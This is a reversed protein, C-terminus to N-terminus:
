IGYKSPIKLDLTIEDCKKIVKKTDQKYQQAILVNRVAQYVFNRLKILIGPNKKLELLNTAKLHLQLIKEMRRYVNFWNGMDKVLTAMRYDNKQIKCVRVILEEYLASTNSRTRLFLAKCEEQLQF